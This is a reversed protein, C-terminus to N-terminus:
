QFEITAVEGATSLKANAKPFFEVKVHRGAQAGCALKLEGGGLVAIQAPAAVLLKVTKHDDGEVVLRYRKGL